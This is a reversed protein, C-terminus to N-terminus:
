LFEVATHTGRATIGAAIFLPQGSPSDILRVAM